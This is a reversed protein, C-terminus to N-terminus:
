NNPTATLSINITDNQDTTNVTFEDLSLDKEKCRKLAKITDDFTNTSNNADCLATIAAYTDNEKRTKNITEESIDSKIRDRQKRITHDSVNLVEAVEDQTHKNGLSNSFIYLVAATIGRPSQGATVGDEELKKIFSKSANYVDENIDLKETAEELHTLPSELPIPIDLMTQMDNLQRQIPKKHLYSSEIEPHDLEVDILKQQSIPQEHVRSAIYLATVCITTKRRGPQSVSQSYRNLIQIGLQLIPDSLGLEDAFASIIKRAEQHWKVTLHTNDPIEVSM